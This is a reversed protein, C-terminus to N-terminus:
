YQIDMMVEDEVHKDFGSVVSLIENGFEVAKQRSLGLEILGDRNVPKITAINKMIQDSFIMFTPKDKMNSLNGRLLSLKEYLGEDFLTSTKQVKVGTSDVGNNVDPSMIKKLGEPAEIGMAKENSLLSQGKPTVLVANDTRPSSYLYESKILYDVLRRAEAKTWNALSGYNKLKDYGRLEFFKSKAGILLEVVESKPNRGQLDKVLTLASRVAEDPILGNIKGKELENAHCIDCSGCASHMPKEGFYRLLYDRRCLKTRSFREMINLNDIVVKKRTKLYDLQLEKRSDLVEITPSAENIDFNHLKIAGQDELIRLISEVQHPKINDPTIYAIEEYTFTIPTNDDFARLFYQVGKIVEVDPFSTEIFFEQLRRDRDSYLLTAKSEQGDRGARGTEQYYNELNAPMQYHIVQRINPKDVGMGFANTAVMVRTKNSLYDEQAKNKEDSELKGHYIGASVGSRKLENYLSTATKITACYVIMSEDPKQKAIDIVDNTKNNSERVNFEINPRDFSGVQEFPNDMQLQAKIDERIQETATATYAFRPIRKGKHAELENLVESIKRFALRFDNGWTSICHAEDVAVMPVEVNRLLERFDENALREPAVYFLRYKGDRLNSMREVSEDVSLSSNLYAASIGEKNLREVQDKMLAILPSIVITTGPLCMAPIQYCLSKGGGTAMVALGDRGSIASNIIDAQGSRFDDYGFVAKLAENPTSFVNNM